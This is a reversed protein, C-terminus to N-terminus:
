TRKKLLFVADARADDHTVVQPKRDPGEIHFNRDKLWKTLFSVDYRRLTFIANKSYTDFLLKNYTEPVDGKGNRISMRISFERVVKDIAEGTRRSVGTALWRREGECYSDMSSRRGSEPSWCPGKVCADVLLFDDAGMWTRVNAIFNHEGKDLNGFTNGLISFLRPFGAYERLKKAIFPARDEFDSLIGIPVHAVGRVQSMAYQLLGDSIDVPIYQLWPSKAKLVDVMPMDIWANGPGLSVLTHIRLPAILNLIATRVEGREQEPFYDPDRIAALWGRAGDTGFYLSRQCWEKPPDELVQGSVHTDIVVGLHDRGDEDYFDEDFVRSFHDAIEKCASGVDDQAPVFTIGHVDSPLRAGKETLIVAKRRGLRSVFMGYELIVNDRPVKHQKDRYWNEDDGTWIVVAGDVVECQERLKDLTYDGPGLVTWWPKPIFSAAALVEVLHKAISSPREESASAIFITKSV